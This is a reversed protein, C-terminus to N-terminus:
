EGGNNSPADVGSFRAVFGEETDRYDSIFNLTMYEGTSRYSSAIDDADGCLKHEPEGQM